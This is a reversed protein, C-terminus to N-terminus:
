ENQYKREFRKALKEMDVKKHKYLDANEIPTNKLQRYNWQSISTTDFPICHFHLHDVTSQADVGDKQIIQMGKIGHVERILKKAIYMMKRMTEWESKTLEKVSRIHRRPVIMCHGDVYAYLEVTLVIGNEEHFIYKENLDCFVCKGVSKWIKDYAGTTRADRYMIQKEYDTSDM